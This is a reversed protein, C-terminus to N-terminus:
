AELAVFYLVPVPAVTGGPAWWASVNAVRYIRGGWNVQDLLQVDPSNGNTTDPQFPLSQAGVVIRLAASAWWAPPNPGITREGVQAAQVTVTVAPQAETVVGSAGGSVLFRRTWQIPSGGKRLLREVMAIASAQKM